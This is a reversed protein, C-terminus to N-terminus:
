SDKSGWNVYSKYILLRQASSIYLAMIKGVSVQITTETNAVHMDTGAFGDLSFLESALFSVMPEVAETQVALSANVVAQPAYQEPPTIPMQPKNAIM